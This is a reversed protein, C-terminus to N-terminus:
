NSSENNKEEKKKEEVFYDFCTLCICRGASIYYKKSKRKCIDCKYYDSPKKM